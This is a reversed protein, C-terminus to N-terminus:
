IINICRNWSCPTTRWKSSDNENVKILTNYKDAYLDRVEKTLNLM